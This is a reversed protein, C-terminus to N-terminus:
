SYVAPHEDHCANDHVAKSMPQAGKSALAWRSLVTFHSNAKLGTLLLLHPRYSCIIAALLIPPSM